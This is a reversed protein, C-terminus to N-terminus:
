TPLLELAYYNLLLWRFYALMLILLGLLLLYAQWHTEEQRLTAISPDTASYWVPIAVPNARAVELASAAQAQTTAGLDKPIQYDKNDVKYSYIIKYFYNPSKDVIREQVDVYEVPHATGEKWNYNWGEVAKFIVVPIAIM